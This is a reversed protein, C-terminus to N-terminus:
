SEFDIQTLRLERDTQENEEEIKLNLNKEQSAAKKSGSTQIKRKEALEVYQQRLPKPLTSQWILKYPSFDGM